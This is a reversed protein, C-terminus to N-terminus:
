FHRFLHAVKKGGEETYYVTVKAGKETGKAVGKASDVTAVDTYHYVEEAGKATQISVTKAAEDVKTVTGESAKVTGKGVYKFSTATADAGEGTYKVVVHAGKEAGLATYSAGAKLGEVTAKESVKVVKVTGDATKVSVTKAASDVAEVTGTMARDVPNPKKATAAAPAQGAWSAPAAGWAMMTVVVAGCLTNQVKRMLKVEFM